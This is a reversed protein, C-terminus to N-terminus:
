KIALPRALAPTVTVFAGLRDDLREIRDLYHETVEPVSLRRSRIAAALQLGTLDHISGMPQCPLAVVEM